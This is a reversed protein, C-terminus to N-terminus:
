CVMSDVQFTSRSDTVSQSGSLVIQLYQTPACSFWRRRMSPITIGISKIKVIVKM